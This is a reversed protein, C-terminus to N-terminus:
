LHPVDGAPGDPDTDTVGGAKEAAAVISRALRAFVLHDAPRLGYWYARGALGRPAFITRQTLHCGDDDSGIQWELWVKGPVKAESRLRILSGPEVKDVRWSDVQDGEHMEAPHTRGIRPGVGGIVQDLRGRGQWVPSTGHWGREGGIASVTAFLVGASASSTVDHRDVLLSGGAWDPDSAHPDAVGVGTELRDLQADASHRVALDVAEGFGLLSREFPPDSPHRVVVENILSGVLPQALKGPLPTVLGVWLASLKPSLVPVKVILRRRLGAAEAYTHMMQRYTLVDPGGVEVIHDEDDGADLSGVLWSLIDGIAIPQCRNEVWKPTTMAPLVEVLYRLMEFSASGSGIIIAARLETVPVKGDALVRGVEHRSALHPSLDPDDDRGLGGLYIIRGVGADAAAIRFTEAARRDELAFDDAGGLSHVLFYAGDIGALAAPLSDADTLDGEIVEVDGRWPADDLKSATRALCRVQHGAELLEPVLRGGIYGTAGTVLVHSM